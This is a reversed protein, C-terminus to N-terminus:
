ENVTFFLSPSNYRMPWIRQLPNCSFELKARYGVRGTQIKRPLLFTKNLYGDHFAPPETAAPQPDYVALVVETHPDFLERRITGQCTRNYHVKWKVIMQDNGHAETPIIVSLDADFEYPHANDLMWFSIPGVIIAIILSLVFLARFAASGFLNVLLSGYEIPRMHLPDDKM